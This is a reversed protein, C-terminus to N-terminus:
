TLMRMVNKCLWLLSGHLSGDKGGKNGGCSSESRGLLASGRGRNLGLRELIFKTGHSRYTQRFVKTTAQLVTGKTADKRYCSTDSSASSNTLSCTCKLNSVAREEKTDILCLKTKEIRKTQNGISALFLEVQKSLVLDLVSTNGHQSNGSVQGGGSSDSERSGFANRISELGERSKQLGLVSLIDKQLHKSEEGNGFDDITIGVPSIGLSFKNTVVTVSGEVKSPVVKISGGLQLLAGNLQVVSTGGHHSDPAKDNVFHNTVADKWSSVKWALLKRWQQLM